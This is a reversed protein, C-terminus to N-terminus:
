PHWTVDHLVDREYVKMTNTIQTRTPDLAATDLAQIVEEAHSVIQIAGSQTVPRHDDYDARNRDRRLDGLKSAAKTVEADGSNLLRLFLYAHAREAQPVRFRLAQLLHRAVHFAAYYARSCVSRWEAETTGQALIDALRLYDRFDM